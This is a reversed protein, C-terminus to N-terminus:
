NLLEVVPGYTSLASEQQSGTKKENLSELKLYLDEYIIMVEDNIKAYLYEWVDELATDCPLLVKTFLLHLFYRM